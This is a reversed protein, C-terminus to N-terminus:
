VIRSFHRCHQRFFERDERACAPNGSRIDPRFSRVKEPGSAVFFRSSHWHLSPGWFVSSLLGFHFTQTCTASKRFSITISESETVKAITHYTCLVYRSASISKLVVTVLICSTKPVFYGFISTEPSSFKQKIEGSEELRTPVWLLCALCGVMRVLWTNCCNLYCFFASFSCICFCVQKRCCQTELELCGWRLWWSYLVARLSV